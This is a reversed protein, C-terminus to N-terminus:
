KEENNLTEMAYAVYLATSITVAKEDINFKDSHNPYARDIEENGAGVFAFVGPIRKQYVSFDEGLLMKPISVIQNENFVKKAANVAVKTVDEDNFVVPHASLIYDVEATGGYIAATGHAIRKISKEIQKADVLSFSRVTGKIFADGPIINHQKGAHVQGITVVASNLPDEERSIISQLNMIIAAAILSADVCQHPKGAHGSKGKIKITFIDSAAMRAGPEISIKGCEIDAFVHLGFIEEVDELAGDEIMLKAGLCNEESPQFLLSIKGKIESEHKKLIKAAGLLAAMHADHGCAHMIGKNQSSYAVETKEEIKLADMDARLAIHKGEENGIEALVGTKAVEKFPIDMNTLEEKIKKSTEYEELGLEPFKHFYKRLGVVYSKLLKVEENINM